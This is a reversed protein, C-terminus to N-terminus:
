HGRSRIDIKTGKNGHREVEQRKTEHQRVWLAAGAALAAAAVAIAAVVRGWVAGSNVPVHAALLAITSAVAAAAPATRRRLQRIGIPGAALADVTLLYTLLLAADVVMQWVPPNGFGAIITCGVVFVTNRHRALQGIWHVAMSAPRQAIVPAAWIAGVLVAVTLLWGVPNRDALKSPDTVALALALGLVLATRNPLLAAQSQSAPSQTAPPPTVPLPTAPPHAASPTASALSPTQSADTPPTASASTPLSAPSTAAAHTETM